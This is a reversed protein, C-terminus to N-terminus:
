TISIFVKFYVEFLYRTLEKSLKKRYAVNFFILLLSTKYLYFFSNAFRAKKLFQSDDTSGYRTFNLVPKMTVDDFGAQVLIVDHSSAVMGCERAVSIATFLNDGTVM